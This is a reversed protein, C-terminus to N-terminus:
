CKGSCLTFIFHEALILAIDFSAEIGIPEMSAYSSVGATVSSLMTQGIEVHTNTNLATDPGYSSIKFYPPLLTTLMHSLVSYSYPATIPLHSRTVKESYCYTM